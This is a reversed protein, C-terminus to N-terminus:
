TGIRDAAFQVPAPDYSLDVPQGCATLYMAHALNGRVVRRLGLYSTTLRPNVEIICDESGDVADGLVLDIGWYGTTPPMAAAVRRAWQEARRQLDDPLPTLGGLYRFRGDDSLIQSCAPLVVCTGPGSLLSVSAPLGAQYEELRYGSGPRVAALAQEWDAVRQLGLSGAGDRPKLVGPFRFSGPAARQSMLFGRPVPLGASALRDATEQKDGAIAVFDSGPSLLRGGSQEVWQCRTRLHGAFEPAIVITWDARQRCAAFGRREEAASAVSFVEAGEIAIPCRSDQLVAVDAFRALDGALARLMASGERLLGGAPLEADVSWWGGGSVFEYVFLHPAM